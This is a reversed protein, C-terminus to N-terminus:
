KGKSTKKSAVIIIEDLQKIRSKLGFDEPTSNPSFPVYKNKGPLFINFSIKQQLKDETWRSFPIDGSTSDWELGSPYPTNEPHSHNVARVTYGGSLQNAILDTIGGEESHKHSSTIFNLGKEGEVGAKVHSWEVSTNQAFFEFLKTSNVDGRTKYTDYKEGYNDKKSYSKIVTKYPLTLSKNNIRNGDNDVIFFSDHTDNKVRKVIEGSSNIDWEDRGDPDIYRVPNNYDYSYPSQFTKKGQLPDVSMWLSLRPDYYRAGYYYLGTEEDLEKGNFKYPTAYSSQPNREEIFVEGYPIYEVHQIIQGTSDTICVSSGLHDKHYYYQLDEYPGQGLGRLSLSDTGSSRMSPYGYEHTDNDIGIFPVGLKEYNLIQVQELSDKKSQYYTLDGYMGYSAFNTFPDNLYASTDGIKSVIREGGIYIHKTYTNDRDPNTYTMFPNVYIVCERRDTVHNVSDIDQSNANSNVYHGSLGGHQKVMRNGDSDYLYCSVYGNESIASLRNEEDWLYKIESTKNEFIGNKHKRATNEYLMNGNKDYEFAHNKYLYTRGTATIDRYISDEAISDLQFRRGADDSYSYTLNYGANLHGAAMVDDQEIYLGKRKVRYMDDYGMQLTYSATKGSLRQGTYTGSATTLRSLDDYAYTHAMDGSYDPTPPLTTTCSIGTINGIDDYTYANSIVRSVGNHTQLTNLRLNDSKYTYQNYAGSGYNIRTRLGFKNYQIDTVYNYRRPSKYGTVTNVQGGVDYGYTIQEGDPYNMSLLRGFSDYDWLTKFTFVGEYPVTITRNEETVNGLADYKYTTGGSADTKMAVRGNRGDGADVGYIYRVNNEPHEPYTVSTLLNFDYGYSVSTGKDALNATQKTLLNGALDYSLKTTGSAPHKVEIQRDLMDYTYATTDGECNITYRPRQIGDYLFLTAIETNNHFQSSKVTLGSGNTYSASQHGLADTVLTCFTSQGSINSLNYISTTVTNDPMVIQVTRNM